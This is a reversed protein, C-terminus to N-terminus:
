PKLRVQEAHIPAFQRKRLRIHQRKQIFGGKLPSFAPGM